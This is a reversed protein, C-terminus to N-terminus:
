PESDTEPALPCLVVFEAGGDVNRASIKGGMNDQIIARTMYLGIGTGEAKTTFYPDFIRALVQEPIGGGTDTVSVRAWGEERGIRLAIKGGQEPQAAAIADKANTILNVLAQSFENPYGFATADEDVAVSIAVKHSKLSAELLKLVEEAAARLSFPKKEKDPRFFNRFDDITQSMKEILRRSDAVLDDLANQDLEGHDYADKIEFIVLGLANLPQRWQHAINGIMEGMAAQRSQQVLMREQVMNRAVQETVRHELEQNLKRLSAESLLLAAETRERVEVERALEERSATVEHLRDLMRNFDRSLDGLEDRASADLRHDLNGGAVIETGQRLRQLPQAISRGVLYALLAISLTATGALVVAILDVRRRFNELMATQARELGLTDSVLSQAHYNLQLALREEQENMAEVCTAPSRERGSRQRMRNFVQLLQEHENRMRTLTVQQRTSDFHLEGLAAGLKRHLKLWQDCARAEEPHLAVDGSLLALQFVNIAFNDLRAELEHATDMQRQAAVFVGALAVGLVVALAIILAIKRRILM